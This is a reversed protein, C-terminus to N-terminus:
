ATKIPVLAINLRGMVGLKIDRDKVTQPEYGEAKFEVTCAGVPLTPFEYQGKDNTAVTKDLATISISATGIADKTEANTITGGLGSPRAGRVEALITAWVFRDATKEDAAFIIQGDALAAAAKNKLENNAIIKAETTNATGASDTKYNEHAANFSTQSAKLRDPFDSPMYGKTMLDTQYTQVFRVMADYLGSVERWDGRTVKSFNSQGAEIIQADYLTKDDAYAEKIYGKIWKFFIAADSQEAGVNKLSSKATEAHTAYSSLGEATKILALNDDIFAITYKSKYAGFKVIHQRCLLWILRCLTYLDPQSCEYNRSVMNISKKITIYFSILVIRLILYMGM